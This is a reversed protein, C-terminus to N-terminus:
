IHFLKQPELVQLTGTNGPPVSRAESSTPFLGCLSTFMLFLVVLGGGSMTVYFPMM